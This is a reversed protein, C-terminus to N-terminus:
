LNEAKKWEEYTRDMQGIHTHRTYIKLWDLFTMTGNEPHEITNNWVHAPQRRILDYSMKRLWRFLELADDASRRHYDLAIAWQDQDYAMVTRGPEAIFTRCRVYSHAESDALHLINEYISWRHPAPKWTWMERPYRAVAAMIKDHAKGYDDILIQIEPSPQLPFEMKIDCREYKGAEPPIETFGTKRYLNIAPELKRNSYLIVKEARLEWAKDLAKRILKEGIRKGQFAPTVGMKTLEFVGPEHAKLAVTGVIKDGSKAYLIAGGPEIIHKDPDGLVMADVPEIRFYQNLWEENLTKFHDRLSPEYPIITIKEM